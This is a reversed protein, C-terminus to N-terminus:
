PLATPACYMGRRPRTWNIETSHRNQALAGARRVIIPFTWLISLRATFASFLNDASMLGSIIEHIERYFHDIDGVSQSVSAIRFLAAQTREATRLQDVTAELRDITAVQILKASVLSAVTTLIELHDANFQDARADECDIVGLIQGKYALPVCIESCATGVDHLYREEEALDPVLLPEGSEAVSGTIGKGVPIELRNLIIEGKPNKEGSAARQVLVQREQDLLYIVCDVFGMKGVVERAAYWVLQEGTKIDALSLSFQNLIRLYAETDSVPSAVSSNQRGGKPAASKGKDPRPTENKSM